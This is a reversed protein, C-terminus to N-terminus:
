SYAWVYFACASEGEIQINRVHWPFPQWFIPSARAKKGFRLAWNHRISCQVM